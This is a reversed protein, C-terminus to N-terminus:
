EVIKERLSDFHEEGLPQNIPSWDIRDESGPERVVFRDKPSRGTHAGTDVVLPGGEALEAEERRLAHTYLLATTPNLYVRRRPTLGHEALDASRPEITTAMKTKRARRAFFCAVWLAASVSM